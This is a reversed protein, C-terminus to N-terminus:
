KRCEVYLFADSFQDIFEFQMHKEKFYDSAKIKARSVSCFGSDILLEELFSFDLMIFHQNACLLSNNFRGGISKYKEPFDSLKLIDGQIYSQIAYELSPVVIRVRGGPKLVRHFESFLRRVNNINFHEIIHSAYIGDISDNPFPLGLTIDLWIDKKRLINGDINIMGRIYSTGCGLNVFVNAPRRLCFRLRYWYLSFITLKGFFLYYLDKLYQQKM